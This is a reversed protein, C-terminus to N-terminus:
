CCVSTRFQAVVSATAVSTAEASALTSQDAFELVRALLVQPLDSWTVVM